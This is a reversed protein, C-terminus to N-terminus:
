GYPTRAPARSSRRHCCRSAAMASDGTATPADRTTRPWGSTSVWRAAWTAYGGRCAAASDPRTYLREYLVAHGYDFANFLRAAEPYSRLFTWNFAGPYYFQEDRRDQAPAAAAGLVVALLALLGHRTGTSM